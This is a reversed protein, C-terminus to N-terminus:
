ESSNSSIHVVSSDLLTAQVTSIMRKCAQFGASVVSGTLELSMRSICHRMELVLVARASFLSLMLYHAVMCCSGARDAAAHENPGKLATEQLGLMDSAHM